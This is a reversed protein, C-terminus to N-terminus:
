NTTASFLRCPQANHQALSAGLQHNRFFIFGTNNQVIVLLFMHKYMQRELRIRNQLAKKKVNERNYIPAVKITKNSMSM